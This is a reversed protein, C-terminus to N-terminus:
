EFHSSTFSLRFTYRPSIQDLNKSGNKVIKTRFNKNLNRFSRRYHNDEQPTYKSNKPNRCNTLVLM